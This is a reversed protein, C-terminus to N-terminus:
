RKLVSFNGIGGTTRRFSGSLTNPSLTAAGVFQLSGQSGFLTFTMDLIGAAYTGSITGTAADVSQLLCDSNRRTEVGTANISGSVATGSQTLTMSFSGHDNFNCGNPGPGLWSWSGTWTGTLPNDPAPPQGPPPLTLIPGITFSAENSAGSTGTANVAVVRVFYPGNSLPGSSLSTAASGTPFTGIDIIGSRTGALITYSTPPCGGAPASWTLTVATGNVAAALGSPPNPAALCAGGGITIVVENSDASTGASNTARVRVFYTGAPVGGVFFRTSADGTNTMARDTLGPRSGALITFSTPACGATPAYWTLTISQGNVAAALNSPANPASGCPQLGTGGTVTFTIENSPRSAGASNVARIRVFYTIPPVDPATLSTATSGLFSGGINTAGSSTGAELYYDTVPETGVPATWTLTVATGSVSYSLNTPPGPAVLAAGVAAARM